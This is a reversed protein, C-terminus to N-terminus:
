ADRDEENSTKTEGASAPVTGLRIARMWAAVREPHATTVEDCPCWAYEDDHWHITM